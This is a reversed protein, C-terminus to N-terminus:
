RRANEIDQVTIQGSALRRLNIFIDDPLSREGAAYRRITRENTRFLRAAGRQTLNAKALLARVQKGTV